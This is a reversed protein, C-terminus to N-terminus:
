FLYSILLKKTYECSPATQRSFEQKDSLILSWFPHFKRRGMYYKIEENDIRSKNHYVNENWYKNFVPYSFPIRLRVPKFEADVYEM